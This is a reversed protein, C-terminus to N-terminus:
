LIKLFTNIGNMEGMLVAPSDNHLTYILKKKAASKAPSIRRAREPGLFINNHVDGWFYVHLVFFSPHANLEFMKSLQDERLTQAHIM